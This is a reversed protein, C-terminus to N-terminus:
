KEDGKPNIAALAKAAKNLKFEGVMGIREKGAYFELADVAIQLKRELEDYANLAAIVDAGSVFCYGPLGDKDAQMEAANARVEELTPLDRGRPGLPKEDKTM